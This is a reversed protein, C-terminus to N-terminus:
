SGIRTLRELALDLAQDLTLRTGQASSAARDEASLGALAPGLRRERLLADAVVQVSREEALARDAAATLM